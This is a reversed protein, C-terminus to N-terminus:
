CSGEFPTYVILRHVVKSEGGGQKLLKHTASYAKTLLEEILDSM